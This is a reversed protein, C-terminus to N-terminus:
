VFSPLGRAHFASGSYRFLVLRSLPKSYFRVLFEGRSNNAENEHEFEFYVFTLDFTAPMTLGIAFTPIIELKTM